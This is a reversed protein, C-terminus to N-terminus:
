TSSLQTKVTRKLKNKLNLSDSNYHEITHSHAKKVNLLSSMVYMHAKRPLEM